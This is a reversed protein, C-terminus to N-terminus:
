KISSQAARIMHDTPPLLLHWSLVRRVTDLTHLHCPIDNVISYTHASNLAIIRHPPLLCLLLCLPVRRGRTTAEETPKRPRRAAGNAQGGHPAAVRRRAARAGPEAGDAGPPPQATMLALILMSEGQYCMTM